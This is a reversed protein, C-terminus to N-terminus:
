EEFIFGFLKDSTINSEIIEAENCKELAEIVANLLRTRRALAEAKLRQTWEGSFDQHTGEGLEVTTNKQGLQPTYKAGGINIINPDELVYSEKLTTKATYTDIPTQVIDRGLYMESTNAQWIVADSRVPINEIMSVLDGNELISKLRLLELSSVSGWSKGEVVLETKVTGSANTAEQSFLANIYEKAATKFWNLKEAVTTQVLIISRKSPEDVTGEKPTYTKTLGKFAGQHNRFFGMYDRIMAKFSSGLHQTKALTQNLKM